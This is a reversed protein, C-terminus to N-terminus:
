KQKCLHAHWGELEARDHAGSAPALVNRRCVARLGHDIKRAVMAFTYPRHLDLRRGGNCPARSATLDLFVRAVYVLYRCSLSLGAAEKKSTLNVTFRRSELGPRAGSVRM